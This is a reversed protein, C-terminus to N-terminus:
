RGSEPPVSVPPKVPVVNVPVLKEPLPEAKVFRLADFRDEPVTGAAWIGASVPSTVELAPETAVVRAFEPTVAPEYVFAFIVTSAFPLTVAAAFPVPPPPPAPNATYSLVLVFSPVKKYRPKPLTFMIVDDPSTTL